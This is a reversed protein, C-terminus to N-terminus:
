KLRKNENYVDKKQLAVGVEVLEGLDGLLYYCNCFQVACVMFTIKYSMCFVVMQAIKGTKLVLPIFIILVTRHKNCIVM